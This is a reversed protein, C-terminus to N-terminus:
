LGLLRSHLQLGPRVDRLGPHPPVGPVPESPKHGRKHEDSQPNLRPRVVPPAHSHPLLRLGHRRLLVDLRRLGPQLELGPHLDHSLVEAHLLLLYVPPRLASLHVGPELHVSPSHQHLHRPSHHHQHPAHVPRQGRERLESRQNPFKEKQCTAGQEPGREAAAAAAPSM